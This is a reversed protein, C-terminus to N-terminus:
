YFPINRSNSSELYAASHERDCRALAKAMIASGYGQAQKTPDVGIWPLYWHPEAPHYSGMEEFVSLLVPLREEPVSQHLIDMLKEEDPQGEPSLWLAFGAGGELMEATEDCFSSGGFARLFQPFYTLYCRADPY